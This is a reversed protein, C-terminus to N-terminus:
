KKRTDALHEFYYKIMRAYDDGYNARVDQVIKTRLEGPLEGWSKGAYAASDLGYASLNPLGGPQAGGGSSQTSASPQGSQKQEGAAMQGAAQALSQAAQKMAAQAQGPNGQSLQGQAAAMQGAAQSMAEGAKPSGQDSKASASRAAGAAAQAARDLARAAGEQSAKEASSEGHQAQEGAQRMAQNARGSMDEAARMASNMSKSTGPKQAADQFQRMLDATERELQRQRSQQRAAQARPDNALPQLLRNIQEQRQSLRRVQQLVDKTQNEVGRPLSVLQSALQRLRDASQKGASLASPLAGAVLQRAAEATTQRAQGAQRAVPTKEGQEEAVDRALEETEKAVAAQQRVLDEVPNDLLTPREDNETQNLRQVRDRLERQQQALRRAQESLERSPMGSPMPSSNAQAAARPSETDPTELPATPRKATATAALKEALRDAADAARAVAQKADSPKKARTLAVAADGMRARTEVIQPLAKRGDLRRLQRALEAQRGAANKDLKDAAVEDALARQERALNSAKDAADSRGSLRDALDRLADAAQRRAQVQEQAPTQEIRNLSELVRKKEKSAKEGGHIERAERAIEQQRRQGEASAAKDPQQEFESVADAQARALREAKAADSEEGALQRALAELKRSAEEMQKQTEPATPNTGAATAARQASEAAERQRQPADGPLNATEQAIRQQKNKIEEKRQAPNAGEDGRKAEEALERQRRALDRAQEDAPKEGRLARELRELQQKAERQSSDIDELRGERLDALARRLAHEARERRDEQSPTDTAHLRKVSEMQSRAAEAMREKATAEDKPLREVRHAIAEQQHRLGQLEHLAKQRRQELSPLSDSLRQLLNKTEEMDAQAQSVNQKRLAEEAQTAREAVNRKLTNAEGHEPPVSLRAAAQRIANQEEILPKNDRTEERARQRLVNEAEALQRAAEKPDSSAALAREFAQALRELDNAAQEQRRSAETANDQKLDEAAKRSEEPKLPPTRAVELADRSRQALKEQQEALEQQRRALEALKELRQRRETESEARMLDRQDQALRRAREALQEAKEQRAREIAQKIPESQQSLRELEAATEAQERQLNEALKRGEPDLVPQKALEAAQEALRNEREALAELKMRDLREQALRDNTAKVDDLRKLAADLQEDAKDFRRTRELAMKQQPAQELAQESQRMEGEATARAREAVPQLPPSTEAIEAIEQLAKESGQNERKLENVREVQDSTMQDEDRTEQRVKYVGRKERLVSERVAQLRRNIEDRQALIEQQKLPDGQRAAQLMLWRDAPYVVVHPGQYEKPLNDRLHFRYELREGERIKGTLELVTRAVVSQTNGGEPKLVERKSEGDNVRYELEVDAVCFDDAAEIELPIRDTPLVSRLEEKGAFRVVSPPRDPVVRITGGALETFVGQEAELLLRYRADKIATLSLTASQRDESLQLSQREIKGEDGKESRAESMWEIVGSAAPRTFRFDFRIESYQLPSLDVLGTFTEEEKVARAYQPPVVVIRPSDSALEVPTVTTVRYSASVADGAEVRYSVDGALKYAFRFNGDTDKDMSYRMAAGQPDEVVLTATELPPSDEDVSLIRAILTLTQGRAAATDGPSVTIDYKQIPMEVHWPSLFRQTREDFQRPWVLAALIGLTLLAAAVGGALLARRSSIVPQFDLPRSRHAADELLLGILVPSGHGPDSNETLEVASTLREGLDPYKAEIAAAIAAPAIRRCMPVIISLAALVAGEGLWFRFLFHRVSAPLNLWHDLGVAAATSLTIVIATWALGRAAGILRVRRRLASLRAGLPSPLKIIATM